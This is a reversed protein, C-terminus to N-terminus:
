IGFRLRFQVTTCSSVESTIGGGGGSVVFSTPHLINAEDQPTSPTTFNQAVHEASRSRVKRAM